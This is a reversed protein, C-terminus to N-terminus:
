APSTLPLDVLIMAGKGPQSEIDFSGKFLDVKAQITTFGFGKAVENKLMGKGNDEVIINLADRHDIVQIHISSANAHKIVNQVLEQCIRYGAVEVDEPLRRELGLIQLRTELRQSANVQEVFNELAAKLGFRRLSVPLMNHSIQRLEDIADDLMKITDKFREFKEPINKGFDDQLGNFRLKVTSLLSGLSDHLDGAIRKREADQTQVLARLHADKQAEIVTALREKESMEKRLDQNLRVSREHIRANEIIVAGQNAAIRAWRVREAIYWGEAFTNELYIVMSLHGNITVPLMAFSRVGREHMGELDRIGTEAALDNVIITDHSKLARLILSAPFRSALSTTNASGKEEQVLLLSLEDSLIRDGSDNVLEVVVHTSGSIRLLLVMLKKILSEVEMDGSLEYQITEIDIDDHLNRQTLATYPVIAEYQRMLQRTKAVAGWESFGRIAESLHYGAKHEEGPIGLLYKAWLEQTVAFHYLNTGACSASQAFGAIAAAHDGEIRAYEAQILHWAPQYNAPGHTQWLNFLSAIEDLKGKLEKRTAAPYHIWNQTMSLFWIFHNAPLLPSGEQLKRNADAEQASFAALEYHGFLFYYRAWVYNRYFKEEQITLEGALWAPKQRPMAFVPSEDMLFQLLSKQYHTIYYTLERGQYSEEFDLQPLDKLPVGAMLHLNLRHTKVIYLGILDGSREGATMAKALLPYSEEFPRKWPQIYFAYVGYVRCRLSVDNLADNIQIGKLGFELGKDIEGSIILMRGYSVCGIAKVGSISQVGSCLIIQLAAWRMLVDSTHHLGMGGVYLLKLIAQRADIDLQTVRSEAQEGSEQLALLAKLNAVEEILQPEGLPLELGLEALSEKLIKVVKLYRGLHNNITIKLQFIHARDVAGPIRELLYDLHIEALDYEGLLYEVKAREMYVPLIQDFVEDWPCEKLLDSSMKFFYRAQELANEKQSIKGARYNLEAAMRFKGEAKLLDIAQNFNSVMLIFQTSTLQDIGRRYSVTAIRYHLAIRERKELENYIMEGIHQDSFHVENDDRTLLGADVVEALIKELFADDGALWDLITRKDFRGMCAMICMVEHASPSLAKMHALLIRETNKGAYRIEVERRDCSWQGEEYRILDAARLSEILVQLHSANGGSLKYCVNVLEQHCRGGLSIELFNMVEGEAFGKLFIKEIRRKNLGLEEDLQKLAGAHDGPARCAGIWVFQTSRLNLLLYKLLNIGSADMWQLDDTFFFVCKGSYEAFFEFLRKFLAYLQNEVTLMSRQSAPPQGTILSLEPIYDLLLPFSDGLHNKLSRSFHEFEKRSFQNYIKSVHDAIGYKFGYYPIREHQQYHRAILVPHVRAFRDLYNEIFFTKGTGSYGSILVGSQDNKHNHLIQQIYQDLQQSCELEAFIKKRIHPAGDVPEHQM